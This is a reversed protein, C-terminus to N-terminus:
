LTTALNITFPIKTEKRMQQFEEWIVFYGENHFVLFNSFNDYFLDFNAFKSSWPQHFNVLNLPGPRKVFIDM